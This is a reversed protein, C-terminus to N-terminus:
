QQHKYQFYHEIRETTSSWWVMRPQLGRVNMVCQFPYSFQPRFFVMLSAWQRMIKATNSASAGHYDHHTMYWVHLPSGLGAILCEHIYTNWSHDTVKDFHGIVVITQRSDCPVCQFVNVLCLALVEQIDDKPAGSWPFVLTLDAEYSLSPMSQYEYIGITHKRRAQVLRVLPHWRAKSTTDLIIVRIGQQLAQDLWCSVMGMSGDGSHGAIYAHLPQDARLILLEDCPLPKERYSYGYILVPDM